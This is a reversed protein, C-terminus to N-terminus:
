AGPANAGEVRWTGRRNQCAIGSWQDRMGGRLSLRQEFARCYVPERPAGGALLVDGGERQELFDTSMYGIAESHRAVLMWPSGRVRGVAEVVTGEDLTASISSSTSAGLRLNTNATATYDGQAPELVWNTQIGVPARLRSGRAYDVNQLFPTGAIVEGSAGTRGNSWARSTGEEGLMTNLFADSMYSVDSFTLSGSYSSGYTVGEVNANPARGDREDWFGGYSVGGCAALSLSLILLLASRLIM